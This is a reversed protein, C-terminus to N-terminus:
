YIIYAIDIMCESAWDSRVWMTVIIEEGRATDIFFICQTDLTVYIRNTSCNKEKSLYTRMKVSIQDFNFKLATFVTRPPHFPHSKQQMNKNEFIQNQGKTLAKEM